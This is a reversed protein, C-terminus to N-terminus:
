RKPPLSWGSSAVALRVDIRNPEPRVTVVVKRDAPDAYAKNLRDHTTVDACEDFPISDNPWVVTVVYEGAPAGDGPAFTALTFLGDPGARGVPLHAAGDVPHFTVHAYAAPVGGVLVKGEVPYVAVRAPEPNRCGALLFVVVIPRLFRV